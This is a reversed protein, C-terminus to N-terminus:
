PLRIECGDTVPVSQCALILGNDLDEESLAENRRMAVRGKHLRCTCTGCKGQVCNTNIFIGARRATQIITEGDHHEVRRASFGQRFVVTLM